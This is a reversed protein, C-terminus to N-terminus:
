VPQKKLWLTVQLALIFVLFFLGAFYFQLMASGSQMVPSDPHLINQAVGLRLWLAAGFALNGLSTLRPQHLIHLGIQLLVGVVALTFPVQWRPEDFFLGGWNLQMVVLSMPLYTLWFILGAWGLARSWDHLRAAGLLAMLGALGALAFLTKGTWVWAGHLLVLRLNDGLSKEAPGFWTILAIFVLTLPILRLFWSKSAARAQNLM